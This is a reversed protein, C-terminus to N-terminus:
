FRRSSDYFRGERDDEIYLLIGRATDNADHTSNIQRNNFILKM